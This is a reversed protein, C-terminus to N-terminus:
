HKVRAKSTLDKCLNIYDYVHIYTSSGIFAMGQKHVLSLGTVSHITGRQSQKQLTCDEPNKHDLAGFAYCSLCYNGILVKQKMGSLFLSKISKYQM